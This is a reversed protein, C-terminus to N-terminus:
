VSAKKEAEPSGGASAKGNRKTLRFGGVILILAEVGLIVGLTVLAGIVGTVANSLGGSGSGSGNTPSSVSVDGSACSGTSNGCAECWEGDSSIAFENMKAMFDTWPLVTESQGFLPFETPMPGDVSASGNQFLFRVSIEDEAPFGDSTSNTVLEWAMTSAYDPIGYFDPNAAPLQSLGFFSQFTAYAGFQINLKMEGASTIMDNLATVVEGALVAGTIAGVTDSSNYALGFEHANALTLLQHYTEDTLLDLDATVNQIRAVNLHDFVTYANKYSVDSPDFTAELMSTLSAYFDATSDLLAEYEPSNFYNNSSVEANPCSSTSQLWASNESNSGTEVQDVPILQYGNMPTEIVTKNRLTQQSSSVPPYLAQLFGTASNQLVDDLPASVVLQSLDVIDSEIGAIQSSPSSSFSIYRNRYYGGSSFVQAYGLDTLVTPPNSKSTRDGHRSYIYAGLVTEAATSTFFSVSATLSWLLTSSHM